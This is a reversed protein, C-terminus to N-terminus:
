GSNTKCLQKELRSIAQKVKAGYKQALQYGQLAAQPNSRQLALGQAKYYKATVEDAIACKDKNTLEGIRQLRDLMDNPNEYDLVYVSFEEMLLEPLTRKFGQPSNMRHQLAYEALTMFYDVQMTDLAWLCITVLTENHKADGSNIVTTLYDAYEFLIELKRVQRQFQSKIARLDHKDKDLKVLMLKHHNASYQSSALARPAVRGAEVDQRHKAAYSQLIVGV